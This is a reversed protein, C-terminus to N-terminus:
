VDYLGLTQILAAAREVGPHHRTEPTIHDLLPAMAQLTTVMDEYAGLENARQLVVLYMRAAADPEGGRVLTLGAWMAATSEGDKDGLENFVKGATSFSALAVALENQDLATTGLTVHAAALYTRDGLGEALAVAEKATARAAEADGATRLEKARDHVLRVRHILPLHSLDGEAQRRAVRILDEFLACTELHEWCIESEYTVRSFGALAPHGKSPREHGPLELGRHAMGELIRIGTTAEADPDRLVVVTKDERRLRRLLALETDVGSALAVCDFVILSAEVALEEVVGEWDEDPVSFRPILSDVVLDFPNRIAVFPVVAHLAAHLKREVSQPGAVRVLEIGEAARAAAAPAGYRYAEAEFARLFLGFPRGADRYGSLIASAEEASARVREISEKQLQVFAEANAPDANVDSFFTIEAGDILGRLASPQDQKPEDPV